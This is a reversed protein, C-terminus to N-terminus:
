GGDRQEDAQRHEDQAAKRDDTAARRHRQADAPKGADDMAAAVREETAAAREHARAARRHAAERRRRHEAPLEASVGALTTAMDPSTWRGNTAPACADYRQPRSPPRLLPSAEVNASFACETKATTIVVRAARQQELTVEIRHRPLGPEAQGRQEM